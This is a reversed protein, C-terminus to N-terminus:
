VVNLFHMNYLRYYVLVSHTDCVLLTTVHLIFLVFFSLFNLGCFSLIIGVFRFNVCFMQVFNIYYSDM